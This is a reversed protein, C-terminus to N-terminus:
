RSEEKRPIERKVGTQLAGGDGGYIAASTDAACQKLLHRLEYGRVRQSATVIKRQLM